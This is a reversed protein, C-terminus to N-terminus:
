TLVQASMMSRHPMAPPGGGVMHGAGASQSGIGDGLRRQWAAQGLLFELVRAMQEPRQGLLPGQSVAGASEFLRDGEELLAEPGVGSQATRHEVPQPQGQGVLAEPLGLLRPSPQVFGPRPEILETVPHRGTGFLLQPQVQVVPQFRVDQAALRFPENLGLSGSISPFGPDCRGPFSSGSIRAIVAQVLVAAIDRVKRGVGDLFYIAPASTCTWARPGPGVPPPAADRLWSSAWSFM